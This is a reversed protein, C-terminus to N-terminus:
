VGARVRRADVREGTCGVDPQRGVAFAGDCVGASGRRLLGADFRRRLFDGEGQEAQVLRTSDTFQGFDPFPMSCHGFDTVTNGSVYLRDTIKAWAALNKVYRLRRRIGARRM